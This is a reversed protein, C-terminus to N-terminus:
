PYSAVAQIIRNAPQAALGGQHGPVPRLRLKAVEIVIKVVQVVKIVRWFGALRPLIAPAM